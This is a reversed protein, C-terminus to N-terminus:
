LSPNYGFYRMKHMCTNEIHLLNEEGFFDIWSLKNCGKPQYQVNVKDTISNFRPLGLKEALTYITNEKNNKFDEYRVLIHSDRKYYETFINWKRSLSDIYGNPIEGLWSTDFALSWVKTNQVEKFAFVDIANLNGPIKLRNLISRINDRPDRVIYVFQASPFYQKLEKSFATLIPEKIIKRSFELQYSKIFSDFSQLGYKLRLQLAADPIARTLDLTVPLNAAQSLLAAIATTGSKHNGLIFIPEREVKALWNVCVAKINNIRKKVKM